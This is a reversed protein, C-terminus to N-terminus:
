TLAGVGVVSAMFGDWGAHLEPPGVGDWRAMVQVGLNGALLVPVGIEALMRRGQAGRRLQLVVGLATIAHAALVERSMGALAGLAELRAAVASASNAHLTVMSGDHGTNMAQLVERIEAGRCEGLVLRDPRMRLATRVLASLDVEGAGEVNARRAVLSIHHAVDPALERAEEVTILREGAPALALLAALLTTKGTGTGGSIVINQRRAVLSSLVPIFEAPLMSRQGLEALSFTKQRLVRLSIVPSGASIPPLLAHLRTGDPLVGDCIPAADDLRQGALAALRVALSRVAGVSGFSVPVQRLAGNQEVWVQGPSNVLVDTVGDQELWYQLPGAGTLEARAALTLDRLADSGLIRGSSALAASVETTQVGSPAADAGGSPNALVGRVENLLDDDLAGIGRFVDDAMGAGIGGIGSGVGAGGGALGVRSRLAVM